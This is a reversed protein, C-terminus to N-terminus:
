KLSNDAEQVVILKPVNFYKRTRITLVQSPFNPPVDEKTQNPKTKTPVFERRPELASMKTFEEFSDSTAPSFSDQNGVKKEAFKYM